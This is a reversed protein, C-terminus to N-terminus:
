GYARQREPQQLWNVDAPKPQGHFKVLRADAPIGHQCHVKYSVLQGPLVDQWYSMEPVPLERVLVQDGFNPAIMQDGWGMWMVPDSKFAEWQAAFDGVNYLLVSQSPGGHYWDSTICIGGQMAMDDLLGTVICSLDLYLVRSFPLDPRFIEPKSWWGPLGLEFPICEVGEIPADTMCVFRHPVTLHDKVGDRLRTVYEPTYQGGSRYVTLVTLVDTGNSVKEMQKAIAPLLGSGHVYIVCGLNALDAAINQFEMAQRVMWPTSIYKRGELWYEDRIDADNQPQSYAHGAGDEYSSDFGYLHIERYGMAFAIGITLLGVTTGAGILACERDGIYDVIAPHSAHWLTVSKERLTEFTKPHCQSAILYNGAWTGNLFGLNEERADLMVFYNPSIADGNLMKMAGNVAFVHHGSDQHATITPLSRRVSPGGAVIVAVKGNPESVQLWPLDLGCAHLMNARIPGDETNCKVAVTQDLNGSRIM